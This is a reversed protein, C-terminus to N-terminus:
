YDLVMFFVGCFYSYNESWALFTAFFTVSNLM